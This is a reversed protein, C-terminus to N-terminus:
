CPKGLIQYTFNSLVTLYQEGANNMKKEVKDAITTAIFTMM